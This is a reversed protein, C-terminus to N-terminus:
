YTMKTTSLVWTPQAASPLQYSSYSPDQGYEALIKVVGRSLQCSKIAKIM